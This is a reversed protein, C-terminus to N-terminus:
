YLDNELRMLRQAIKISDIKFNGDAIARKIQEVRKTDIPSQDPISELMQSLSSAAETFTVKDTSNGQSSLEKSRSPDVNKGRVPMVKHTNTADNINIAM